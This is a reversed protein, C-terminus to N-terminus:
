AWSFLVNKRAGIDLFCCGNWLASNWCPRFISTSLASLFENAGRLLTDSESRESKRCAFNPVTKYVDRTDFEVCIHSVKRLYPSIKNIVKLLTCRESYENKRFERTIAIVYFDIGFKV